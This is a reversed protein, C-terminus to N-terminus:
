RLRNARTVATKIEEDTLGNMFDEMHQDVLGARRALIYWAAAFISDPETGIGMLYLKAVRNQAAVNGGEAARKLIRFGRTEDKDGGRGEILWAGLDLEATDFNQKVAMELWRRAEVDNRPENGAGDAYIRAMAYQADALGGDAALRYYREARAVGAPGPDQEVLMQAFNFQALTNGAEAAAQMLAHAAKVDKEVFRGDLLLLAYQFQAEPAGQEAARQYWKAAEKEDRAVGLGRALIEAVLMQSAPDGKEADKIALNYATRYLGRQYAGYAADLKKTFRAPNIDADRGTPRDGDTAWAASAVLLAVAACIAAPTRM